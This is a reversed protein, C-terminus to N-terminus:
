QSVTVKTRRKKTRIEDPGTGAEDKEDGYPLKCTELELEVQLMM